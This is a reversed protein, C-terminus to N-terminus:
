GWTGNAYYKFWEGNKFYVEFCREDLNRKVRKINAVAYPKRAEEGMSNYHAFYVKLFLAHEQDGLHKAVLLKNPM